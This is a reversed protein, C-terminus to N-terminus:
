LTGEGTAFGADGGKSLIIQLFKLQAKERATGSYTWKEPKMERALFQGMICGVHNPTIRISRIGILDSSKIKENMKKSDNCLGYRLFRGDDTLVAGLNNRWLVSKKRSAELRVISQTYSESKGLGDDDPKIDTDITGMERRLDEVAAYSIGWKIAWQNLNM